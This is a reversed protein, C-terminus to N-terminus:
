AAQDPSDPALFRRHKKYEKECIVPQITLTRHANKGNARIAIVEDKMIDDLRAELVAQKIRMVGATDANEADVRAKVEEFFYKKPLHPIYIEGRTEGGGIHMVPIAGCDAAVLMLDAVSPLSGLCDDNGPHSHWCLGGSYAPSRTRIFGDRSIYPVTKGHNRTKALEELADSYKKIDRALGSALVGTAPASLNPLIKGLKELKDVLDKSPLNIAQWGVFGNFYEPLELDKEKHQENLQKVSKYIAHM